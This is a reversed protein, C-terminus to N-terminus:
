LSSVAARDTRPRVLRSTLRAAKGRGLAGTAIIRKPLSGNAVIGTIETAASGTNTLVIPQSASATGQQQNGFVLSAPCLVIAPATIGTGMVHIFNDANLANTFIDMFVDFTMNSTPRFTVFFQCSAGPAISAPCNNTETFPGPLSLFTIMGATSGNNTLTLMLPASATQQPTAPFALLNPTIDLVAINCAVGDLGSWPRAWLM